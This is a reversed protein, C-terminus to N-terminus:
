VGRHKVRRTPSRVKRVIGGIERGETMKRGRTQKKQKIKTKKSMIFQLVTLWMAM